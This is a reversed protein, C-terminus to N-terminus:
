DGVVPGFGQLNLMFVAERDQQLIKWELQRCHHTTILFDWLQNTCKIKYGHQANGIKWNIVVNSEVAFAKLPKCTM